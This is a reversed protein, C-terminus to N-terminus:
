VLAPAPAMRQGSRDFSLDRAHDFREALANRRPQRAVARALFGLAEFFELADARGLLCGVTAATRHSVGQLRVALAAVEEAQLERETALGPLSAPPPRRLM